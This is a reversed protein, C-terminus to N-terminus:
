QPEMVTLKKIRDKPTVELEQLKGDRYVGKIITRSPAHLKFDVNWDRPWAPFLIIKDDDYQMLMRQLAILGVSGHDQDPIWDYNPGWFAPFRFNENWSSFREVVMRRAEEALGLYAAQIDDQQWCRNGKIRRRRFSELGTELNPKGVGYIRYPFIAYLEPNEVNRPKPDLIKEAPSLLTTKDEMRTPIHPIEQLIRSLSKRLDSSVLNEPLSLIKNIVFILGAIDPLPNVCEWWTELSQSPEMRMKGKEDRPYHEDYFQIVRLAIPLLFKRAFMEDQTFLFYDLMMAVLELGGQWYYRIYRNEVYSVPKGERNWGYNHSAYAGWFYMTEPYFAGEHNFYIKTRAEALPLTDLYMNFLPRMLDFDGSALMSWYILRTNQFWYPGGWRRYDANYGKERAEVTFISGNHKIPYSGRGACANMFRQLIYGRTVIEADEGGTVHIWSREWFGRWWGRHAARSMELDLAQVEAAQKELQRLWEEVSLTQATLIHIYIHYRMNLSDSALIREERTRLGPGCILGGFTRNILPDKCADMLSELGQLKMTEPWISTENRHFWLIRDDRLSLVTDPGEVVPHPADILGYASHVEDGVLERKHTRWSEFHVEAQAGKKSEFELHIVPHLADVWVRINAMSDEGGSEIRIEASHMDLTQRFIIPKIFPNPTIRFRVLGLKLLRGIESWTDTKGIYFLIDGDEEVWLNIGIDGNGLPMSGYSGRSPSDWM